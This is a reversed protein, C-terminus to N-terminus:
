SCSYVRSSNLYIFYIENLMDSVGIGHSWGTGAPNDPTIGHRHCLVGTATIAWIEAQVPGASVHRFGVTNNQTSNSSSSSKDSDCV